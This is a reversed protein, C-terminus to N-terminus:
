KMNKVGGLIISHTYESLTEMRGWCHEPDLLRHSERLLTDQHRAAGLVHSPGQRLTM